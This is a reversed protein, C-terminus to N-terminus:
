APDRVVKEAQEIAPAHLRCLLEGRGEPYL